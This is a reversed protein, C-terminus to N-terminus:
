LYKKLKRRIQADLSADESGAAAADRLRDESRTTAAGGASRRRSGAPRSDGGRERRSGETAERVVQHARPGRDSPVIEFRVSDGPELAKFGDMEIESHHVFVDEGSDREIFGYGKEASFWKVRGMVSGMADSRGARTGGAWKTENVRNPASRM